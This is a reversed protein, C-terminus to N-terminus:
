SGQVDGRHQSLFKEFEAGLEDATPLDVADALLNERASSRAFADYQEELARVVGAVEESDRVQRAIEEHAEDAADALEGTRLELGTVGEIQKLAAVAAPPYVSQALYHPVHVAYGVADHGQEGLRLELLNSASGPVKVRGFLSVAAGTLSDRTAHATATVARTHPVGMPIGYASVTLSVAFREVLQSVAAVFREWQVDPESGHLVLVATGESDRVLDIALEPAAYETWSRADFVMMPRRSRYDVLQDVDFTVLRRSEGHELLHTAATEAVGGADVLGRVTNILVPGTAGPTGPLGLEAEVSGDVEFIGQPDLM